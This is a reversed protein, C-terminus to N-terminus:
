IAFFFCSFFLCLVKKDARKEEVPKNIGVGSRKAAFIEEFESSDLHKSNTSSKLAVSILAVYLLETYLILM